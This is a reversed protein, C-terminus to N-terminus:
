LGCSLGGDKGIRELWSRSVHTFRPVLMLYWNADHGQGLDHEDEREATRVTNALTSLTPLARKSVRHDQIM